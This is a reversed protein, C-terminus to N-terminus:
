SFYDTLQHHIDEVSMGKANIVSAKTKTSHIGLFNSDQGSVVIADFKNLNGKESELDSVNYGQNRLYGKVNELSKEVAVKKM